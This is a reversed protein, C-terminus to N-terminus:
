QRAARRTSPWIFARGQLLSKSLSPSFLWDTERAKPGFGVGRPNAWVRVFGLPALIQDYFTAARDLDNVGFSLHGLM